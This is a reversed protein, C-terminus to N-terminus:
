SFAKIRAKAIKALLRLKIATNNRLGNYEDNGCHINCFYCSQGVYEAILCDYGCIFSTKTISSLHERLKCGVETHCNM